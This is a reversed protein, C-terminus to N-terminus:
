PEGFLHPQGLDSHIVPDSFLFTNQEKDFCGQLDCVLCRGRTGDPGTIKSTPRMSFDITFHSFAQPVLDSSLRLPKPVREEGEAASSGVAETREEEAEAAEDVEATKVTAGFNTNWKRFQGDIKREAFLSRRPPEDADAAEGGRRTVRGAKIFCSMM